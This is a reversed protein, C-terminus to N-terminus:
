ALAVDIANRDYYYDQRSVFSNDKGKARRKLKNHCDFRRGQHYDDMDEFTAGHRGVLNEWVMGLFGGYGYPSYSSTPPYNPTVQGPAEIRWGVAPQTFQHTLKKCPYRCQSCRYGFRNSSCYRKCTSCGRKRTDIDTYGINDDPQIILGYSQGPTYFRQYAGFQNYPSYQSYTGVTPSIYPPGAPVDMPILSSQLGPPPVNSPYRYPQQPMGGGPIFQSQPQQQPPSEIMDDGYPIQQQSPPPRQQQGEGEDEDEDEDEDDDKAKKAEQFIQPNYVGGPLSATIQSLIGSNILYWGGVVLVGITLLDTM